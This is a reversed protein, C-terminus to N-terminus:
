HQASDSLVKTALTKEMVRIHIGQVVHKIRARIKTLAHGISEKGKEM